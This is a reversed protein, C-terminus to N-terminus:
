VIITVAAALTSIYCDMDFIRHWVDWFVANSLFNNKQRSDFFVNVFLMFMCVYLDVLIVLCLM